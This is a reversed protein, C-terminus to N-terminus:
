AWLNTSEVPRIDALLGMVTDSWLAWNGNKLKRFTVPRDSDAGGSHLFLRAYNEEQYSYPNDKVEITYPMSPTYDNNPMAGVFYSKAIYPYKNNQTMRDRIQQKMLPSISQADSMLYDLMNMCTDPNQPTYTDLACVVLAAVQMPDTLSYAGLAEVSNPLSSFTFTAM